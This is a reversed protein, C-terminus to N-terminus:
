RPPQQPQQDTPPKQPPDPILGLQKQLKIPVNKAQTFKEKTPWITAKGFVIKYLDAGFLRSECLYAGNLDAETLNAEFLNARTLYAQELDAGFLNGEFLNAGRLNAGRLNARTLNARGLNARTLNTGELNAGELNAGKLNAGKLNARGLNARTLNTGELNAGKLNAGKLNAGKLNAANLDLKLKSIIEAEALFRIVSSKRDIDNEFRRLISLTRARIVDLSAALLEKSEPSADDGKSAIAMLNKDVLLTSIRDFYLQLVEERTEDADQERQQSAVKEAQERQEKTAQEAQTQQSKQFWAGLIALVVPVGLLQLGDWFSKSPDQIIITETSTNKNDGGDREITVVAIEDNTIGWFGALFETRYIQWVVGGWVISAALILPWRKSQNLRERSREVKGLQQRIIRNM